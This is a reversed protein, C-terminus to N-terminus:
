AVRARRAEAIGALESSVLAVLLGRRAFPDFNSASSPDFKCASQCSIVEQLYAEDSVVRNRRYKATVLREGQLKTEIRPRVCLWPTYDRYDFNDAARASELTARKLRRSLTRLSKPAMAGIVLHEV